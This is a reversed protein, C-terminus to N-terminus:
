FWGGNVDLYELVYKKRKEESKGFLCKYANRIEGACALHRAWGM